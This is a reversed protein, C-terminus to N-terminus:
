SQNCVKFGYKTAIRDGRATLVKMRVVEKLPDAKIKEVAEQWEDLMQDIRPVDARPPELARLAALQSDMEPILVDEVYARLQARTPNRPVPAATAAFEKSGDRCITDAQKILQAKTLPPSAPPKAGVEEDDQCAALFPGALLLVLAALKKM